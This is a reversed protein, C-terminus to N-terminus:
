VQLHSQSILFVIILTSVFLRAEATNEYHNNPYVVSFHDYM